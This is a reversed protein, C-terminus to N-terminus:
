SSVTGELLYRHYIVQSVGLINLHLALYIIWGLIVQGLVIQRGQWSVMRDDDRFLRFGLPGLENRLSIWCSILHIYGLSSEIEPIKSVIFVSLNREGDSLWNFLSSHWGFTPRVVILDKHDILLWSTTNDVLAWAKAFLSDKQRMSVSVSLNIFEGILDVLAQLSVIRRLIGLWLRRLWFLGIAWAEFVEGFRFPLWNLLGIFSHNVITQLHSQIRSVEYFVLVKLLFVVWQSFDIM